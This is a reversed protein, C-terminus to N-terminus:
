GYKLGTLTSIKERIVGSLRKLYPTKYEGGLGFIDAYKNELAAGKEDKSIIDFVNEAAEVDILRQFEGTLRLDPVGFGPLPNIAAKRSAYSNSQYRPSIPAGTKTKGATLQERQQVEFVDTTARTAQTIM